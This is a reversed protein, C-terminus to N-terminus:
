REDSPFFEGMSQADGKNGRDEVGKGIKKKGTGWEGNRGWRGGARVCGDPVEDDWGIREGRREKRRDESARESVQM